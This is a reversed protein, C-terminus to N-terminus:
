SNTSMLSVVSLRLERQLRVWDGEGAGLHEMFAEPSTGPPRSLVISPCSVRCRMARPFTGVFAVSDAWSCSSGERQRDGETETVAPSPGSPLQLATTHNGSPSNTLMMGKSDSRM